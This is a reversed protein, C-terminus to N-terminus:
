GTIFSIYRVYGTSMFALMVVSSGLTEYNMNRNENVGWKTLGFVELFLIGFFIFLIIWLGLLSVIVPLSASCVRTLSSYSYSSFFTCPLRSCNTWATWGRSLNSHSASLSSNRSNNPWMDSIMWTFLWRRSSVVGQQYLMSCTGDMQESAIGGSALRAFSSTSWTYPHSPSFSHIQSCYHYAYCM